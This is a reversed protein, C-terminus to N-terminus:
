QGAVLRISGRLEPFTELISEGISWNNHDIVHKEFEETLRLCGQLPDPIIASDVDESRWNVSLKAAPLATMFDKLDRVLEERLRPFPLFDIAVHHAVIRQVPRPKLIDPVDAYRKATPVLMWRFCTDTQLELSVRRSFQAVENSLDYVPM